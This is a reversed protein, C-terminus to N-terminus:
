FRQEVEFNSADGGTKGGAKGGAKNGGAHQGWSGLTQPSSLTLTFLLDTSVNSKTVWPLYVLAPSKPDVSTYKIWEKFIYAVPHSNKIWLQSHLRLQLSSTFKSSDYSHKWKAETQSGKM